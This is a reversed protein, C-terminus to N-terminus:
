HGLSDGDFVYYRIDRGAVFIAGDSEMTPSNLKVILPKMMGGM